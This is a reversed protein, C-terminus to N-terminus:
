PPESPKTLDSGFVQWGREILNKSIAGGMIGLGIIGVTGAM